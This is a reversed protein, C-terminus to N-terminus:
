KSSALRDLLRSPDAEVIIFERHPLRLFGANGARDLFHMLPDFFGDVDLVAVPKAHIRLQAWALIEFLEDLTGFGGPLAIFAEAMGAMIMKREHMTEVVRMDAVSRHALEKGVLQRTIVGTIEGKHELAGDAVAGMLGVSGGGYVLRRGSRALAAGLARASAAFRPDNGPAAGCFVAVSKPMHSRIM